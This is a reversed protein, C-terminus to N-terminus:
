LKNGPVSRAQYFLYGRDSILNQAKKFLEEAKLANEALGFVTPGSGSVLTAVAGARLLMEKLKRLQPVKELAIKELDNSLLQSLKTYTKERFVKAIMSFLDKSGTLSSHATSELSEYVERTSLPVGPNVLVFHLDGLFDLPEVGEGRGLCLATGGHLFFPVDSGLQSAMQNLSPFDMPNEFLQNLALLTNAADSSGGGLGAAIPIRKQLRIGIGDQIGTKELFLRTAKVVLNREDLPLRSDTSQFRIGKKELWVELTDALDIAQMLTFLEHYGDARKGLVKLLLNVKAPCQREVTAFKM